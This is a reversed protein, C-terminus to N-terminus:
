SLFVKLKEDNWSLFSGSLDRPLDLVLNALLNGPVEPKLLEGKEFLAKFQAHNEPTMAKGGDQRILAQMDTEVVGPRLALSTVSPEEKGFSAALMNLSAKTMCYPGWGVYANTAAGSSVFIMRGHSVRLHPLTKQALAIISYLNVDFITKLEDLRVDAMRGCLGLKGANFVVGDIGNGFALAADVSRQQAEESCVDGCVYKFRDSNPLPSESRGVGVVCVNSVKSLLAQVCALGIGKSAGTVIVTRSM